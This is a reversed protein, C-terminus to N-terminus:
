SSKAKLIKIVNTKLEDSHVPKFIYGSAGAKLMEEASELSGLATVVLVSTDPSIRKVIRLLALGNMNRLKLATTVLDFSYRSIAEVAEEGDSVTTVHYGEKELFASIVERAAEEKDVVLIRIDEKDRVFKNLNIENQIKGTYRKPAMEAITQLIKSSIIEVYLKFELSTSHSLNFSAIIAVLEVDAWPGLPVRSYKGLRNGLPPHEIMTNFLKNMIEPKYWHQKSLEREIYSAILQWSGPPFNSETGKMALWKLYSAYLMMFLAHDEVPHRNCEDEVERALLEFVFVWAVAECYDDHRASEMGVATRLKNYKTMPGGTSKILKDKKKFPWIM